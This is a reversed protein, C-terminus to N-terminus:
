KETNQVYLINYILKKPFFHSYVKLSFASNKMKRILQEYEETTELNAEQMITAMEIQVKQELIQKEEIQQGKHGKKDDGIKEFSLEAQGILGVLKANEKVIIKSKSYKDGMKALLYQINRRKEVLYEGDKQGNGGMANVFQDLQEIIVEMRSIGEMEQMIKAEVSEAVIEKHHHM